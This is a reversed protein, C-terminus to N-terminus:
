YKNSNITEAYFIPEIIQKAYIAHLMGVNVDHLPVAQILHPNVSSWYQNNQSSVHGHLHFWSEDNFFSL